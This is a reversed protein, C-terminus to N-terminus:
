KRARWEKGKIEIDPKTGIYYKEQNRYSHLM